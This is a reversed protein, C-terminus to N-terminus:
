LFTKKFCASAARGEDVSSYSDPLDDRMEALKKYTRDVKAQNAPSNRESAPPMILGLRRAEVDMSLGEKLREFDEKPM